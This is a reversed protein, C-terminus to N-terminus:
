DAARGLGCALHRDDAMVERGGHRNAPEDALREIDASRSLRRTELDQGILAVEGAMAAVAGAAAVIGKRLEKAREVQRQLAEASRVSAGTRAWEPAVKTAAYELVAVFRDAQDGSAALLDSSHELVQSLRRQQSDASAYLERTREQRMERQGADREREDRSPARAGQTAPRWGRVLRIADLHEKVQRLMPSVSGTETSRWGCSCASFYGENGTLRRWGNWHHGAVKSQLLGLEDQAPECPERLPDPWDERSHECSFGSPQRTIAAQEESDRAKANEYM